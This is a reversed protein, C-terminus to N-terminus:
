EKIGWAEASKAAKPLPKTKAKAKPADKPTVIKKETEEKVM